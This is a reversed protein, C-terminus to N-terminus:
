MNCIRTPIAYVEKAKLIAEVLRDIEEKTNYFTLSARSTAAVNFHKM